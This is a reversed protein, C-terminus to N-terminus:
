RFLDDVIIWRADTKRELRRLWYFFRSFNGIVLKRFYFTWFWFKAIKNQSSESIWHGNQGQGLALIPPVIIPWQVQTPTFSRESQSLPASKETPAGFWFVFWFHSVSGIVVRFLNSSSLNESFFLFFAHNDHYHVSIYSWM